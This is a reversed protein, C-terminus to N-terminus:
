GAAIPACWRHLRITQHPRQGPAFVTQDERENKRSRTPLRGAEARINDGFNHQTSNESRQQWLSKDIQVCCLQRPYQVANRQQQNENGAM